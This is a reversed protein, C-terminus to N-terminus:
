SVSVPGAARWWRVSNPAALRHGDRRQRRNKRCRLDGHTRHSVTNQAGLGGHLEGSSDGSIDGGVRVAVRGRNRGQRRRSPCPHSPGPKQKMTTLGLFIMGPNGRLTIFLSLKVVPGIPPHYPSPIEHLDSHAKQDAFLAALDMKMQVAAPDKAKRRDEGSILNSPSCRPAAVPAKGTETPMPETRRSSHVARKTRRKCNRGKGGRRKSQLTVYFRHGIESVWGRNAHAFMDSAYRGRHPSRCFATSPEGAERSRM